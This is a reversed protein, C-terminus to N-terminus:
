EDSSFIATAVQEPTAAEALAQDWAILDILDNRNDCADECLAHLFLTDTISRSRKGGNTLADAVMVESQMSAKTPNVTLHVDEIILRGRKTIVALTQQEAILFTVTFEHTGNDAATFTYPGPLTALPDTSFFGVTGRYGTVVNHFADQVTVFIHFSQGANARHPSRILFEVPAGPNVLVTGTGSITGSLRGTATVTQHGATKLTIVFTHTGGDSATFTYNRPLIAKRDSSTFHISGRYGSAVNGFADFATVTLRFADGATARHISSVVFDAAAGPSVDITATGTLTKAHIDAAAILQVGSCKLVFTFTHMGADSAQFTYSEPLDAKHASSTFHVRGRYGTAVNGLADLATVTLTLVQGAIATAATQVLFSVAEVAAVKQWTVSQSGVGGNGSLDQIGAGNVTFQCQGLGETLGGLGNIQFMSGSLQEITVASTLLNPGGNLTLTVNNATFTAPNIAESFTVDLSQVAATTSGTPANTIGTITPVVAEIFLSLATDTSNGADDTVRVRIQHSGLASFNVDKTFAAGTATAPGLDQNTTLDFLNLHLNPEGLSAAITLASSDTTFSNSSVSTGPSVTLNFAAVPPTTDMIWSTSVIGSGNNGALDMVSSADVTLEYTGQIATLEALGSIQYTSGSIEQIMVNPDILNTGGNLALSLAALTFSAPNIPKSFVVTVHDVPTNTAAPAGTIQSITPRVADLNWSVSGTGVGADGRADTVDAANVALVYNGDSATLGALGNVEYTDTSIQAITVGNSILNPGGDFTLTLASTTFSSPNLAGSFTVQVSSVPTNRPGPTVGSVSSVFPATASMTWSESLSGEGINGENDQVGVASVTLQYAGDAGTLTDLGNIRYTSGSVPTITVASTILNPGGNLTLTLNSATFTSLNIPQSFTVQITSIVQNRPNPRISQLQVITPLTAQLPAYVLTYSGTSNYDFLHLLNQDIPANSFDLFTRDTQWADSGVPLPTGDSRIVQVLRFQDNGPDPLELYAFGVPMTATLHITLNGISPDSDVSAGNGLGVPMISGDSLYVTDPTHNGDPIDNVLFDPLGDAFPGPADVVHTLEHIKVSNITALGPAGLRSVDKFTASYSQFSGQLTSTLLWQAVATKGPDITGLDATLSPSLSQNGVQTALISFNVLLGKQNDVIQPEASTVSVNNATGHGVNTVLVGLAFPEAPRNPNTPDPGFVDRQLFYNVDLSPTPMVSIPSPTLPITVLEGDEVYSMSGGVYYVTAGTPAANATPIIDWSATGTTNAAVMGSGDVASLNTFSPQQISFLNTADNGNGDLVKLQISIGTLATTPDNNSLNLTAKFASLAVVSTQNIQVTVTGCVTGPNNPGPALEQQLQNVFFGAGQVLDPFGLATSANIDNLLATADQSEIDIALFDTSQGAPVQNLFFVGEQYYTVTRNWREMFASVDAPSTGEPLPISLLNAEEDTTLLAGNDSSDMAVMGGSGSNCNPHIYSLFVTLWNALKPGSMNNILNSANGLLVAGSPDKLAKIFDSLYGAYKIIAQEIPSLSKGREKACELIADGIEKICDVANQVNDLSGLIQIVKAEPAVASIIALAIDRIDRNIQVLCM